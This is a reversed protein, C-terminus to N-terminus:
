GRAAGAPRPGRESPRTEIRVVLDDFDPGGVGDSCRLSLGGDGVEVVMGCNGIWAHEVGREDQWSNWMKVVCSSGEARVDVVVRTPATDNWLVFARAQRGDITLSGRDVKLNLAQRTGPAWRVFEVVLTAPVALSHRVLGHVQRGEHEIPAGRSEALLEALTKM